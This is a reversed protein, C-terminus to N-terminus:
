IGSLRAVQRYLYRPMEPFLLHKLARTDSAGYQCASFPGQHLVKGRLMATREIHCTNFEQNEYRTARM